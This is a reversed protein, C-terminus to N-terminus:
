PNVLNITFGKEDLKVIYIVDFGETYELMELKKATALVGVRPINKKGERKANRILADQVDSCFFYGVVKYKYQHAAEIYKKREEKTPNTNDVVFQTQTDFCTQMFLQEKNRTKLKDMSIHVHTDFFNQLYFTTKGTAQIGTFIIAQMPSKSKQQFQLNLLFFM